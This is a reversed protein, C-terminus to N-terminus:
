SNKRVDGKSYTTECQRSSPYCKKSQRNGLKEQHRIFTSQSTNLREVICRTSRRLNQELVAKLLNDDFNSPHGARPEYKLIVDGSRFKVFCNRVARDTILGEGYVRCIKEATANASNGKKFERLIVNRIQVKQSEM